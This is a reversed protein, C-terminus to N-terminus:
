RPIQLTQLIEMIPAGSDDGTMQLVYQMRYAERDSSYVSDCCYNEETLLFLGAKSGGEIWRVSFPPLREHDDPFVDKVWDWVNMAQWGNAGTYAIHVPYSEHGSLDSIFIWSGYVGVIDIAFWESNTGIHSELILPDAWLQGGDYFQVSVTDTTDGPFLRAVIDNELLVHGWDECGDPITRTVAGDADRDFCGEDFVLRVPEQVEGEYGQFVEEQIEEIDGDEQSPEGGPRVLYAVVFAAVLVVACLLWIIFQKM